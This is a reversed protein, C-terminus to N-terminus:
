RVLLMKRTNSRATGSILQCFYVGSGAERGSADRGDWTVTHAGAALQADVLVCTKRGLVDYVVMQVRSQRPVSFEITTAPNFPNPYNPALIYGAPIPRALSNDARTTHVGLMNILSAREFEKVSSWPLLRDPFWNLDGLPYSMWAAHLLTDNVYALNEPLPWGTIRRSDIGSRTTDTDPDWGWVVTTTPGTYQDNLFSLISDENGPPIVFRPDTSDYLAAMKMTGDNEALFKRTRDNLAPEAFIPDAMHNANYADYYAQFAPTRFNSNAYLLIRRGQEDHNDSLNYPSSLSDINIISGFLLSDANNAFHDALRREGAVHSNVFVSNVIYAEKWYEELFAFNIVNLFTAHDCWLWQVGNGNTSIGEGLNEFTTNEILISDVPANVFDLARGQAWSGGNVCNRFTSNTLSVMQLHRGKVTLASGMPWEFICRDIEVRTSDSSIQINSSQQVDNTSWSLIWLNELTLDGLINLLLQDVGGDVRPAAELVAPGPDPGSSPPPEGVLRLHYGSTQIRSNMLYRQGRRLLYVRNPDKRQGGALTDGYVAANLTGIGPEVTDIDQAVASALASSSLAFWVVTLRQLTNAM